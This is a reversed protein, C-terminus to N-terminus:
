RYRAKLNGWTSKVSPVPAGGFINGCYQATFGSPAFPPFSYVDGNVCGVFIDQGNSWDGMCTPTAAGSPLQGVRSFPRLNGFCGEGSYIFGQGDVAFIPGTGILAVLTNAGQGRAAGGSFHLTVVLAALAVSALLLKRAVAVERDLGCFEAPEDPSARSRACPLSERSGCM